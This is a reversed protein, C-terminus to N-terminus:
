GFSFCDSTLSSGLQLLSLRSVLQLINWEFSLLAKKKRKKKLKAFVPMALYWVPSLSSMISIRTCLCVCIWVMVFVFLQGTPKAALVYCAVYAGTLLVALSLCPLLGTKSPVDCGNCFSPTLQSFAM